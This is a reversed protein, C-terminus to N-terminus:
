PKRVNKVEFGFLKLRSEPNGLLFGSLSLHDSKGRREQPGDEILGPADPSEGAPSALTMTGSLGDPLVHFAGRPRETDRLVDRRMGEALDISHVTEFVVAIYLPHPAGEVVAAGCRSHDISHRRLVQCVVRNAPTLAALVYDVERNLLYETTM